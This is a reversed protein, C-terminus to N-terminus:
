APEQFDVASPTASSERQMLYWCITALAVLLAKEPHKHDRIMNILKIEIDTM